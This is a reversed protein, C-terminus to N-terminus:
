IFDVRRAIKITYIRFDFKKKRIGLFDNKDSQIKKKKKIKTYDRFKFNKKQSFIM